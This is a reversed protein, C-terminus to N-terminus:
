LSARATLHKITRGLGDCPSKGHSTAFFSWECNYNFDTEHFCLNIFHKCNTYQRACGDSFYRIKTIKDSIHTATMSMVKNVFDVDHNLDDSIFCISDEALIGNNKYYLVVPHLLCSQQNWHYSQVEDQIVFKYNEAFDLLIVVEDDKLDEKCQKLYSSQAKAIFSQKTLKNLKDVLSEIFEDVPLKMTVLETRDTTTWQKVAYRTFTVISM